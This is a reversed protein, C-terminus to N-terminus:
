DGGGDGGGGFDGHLRWMAEVTGRLAENVAAAVLQVTVHEGAGRVFLAPPLVGLLLTPTM